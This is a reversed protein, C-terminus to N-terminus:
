RALTRPELGNLGRPHMSFPGDSFRGAPEGHRFEHRPDTGVVLAFQRVGNCLWITLVASPYRARDRGVSGNPSLEAPREAPHAAHEQFTGTLRTRRSACLCFPPVSAVGTSGNEMSLPYSGLATANVPHLTFTFYSAPFAVPSIRLLGDLRRPQSLSWM